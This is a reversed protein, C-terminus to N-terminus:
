SEDQENDRSEQRRHPVAHGREQHHVAPHSRELRHALASLDGPSLSPVKKNGAEHQGAERHEARYRQEDPQQPGKGGGDDRGCENVTAEGRTFGTSARSDRGGCKRPPGLLPPGLRALCSSSYATYFSAAFGWMKLNHTAM